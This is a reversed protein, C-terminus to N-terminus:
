QIKLTDYYDFLSQRIRLDNEKSQLSLVGALLMKDNDSLKISNKAEISNICQKISHLNLGNTRVYSSEYDLDYSRIDCTPEEKTFLHGYHWLNNNTLKPNIKVRCIEKSQPLSIVTEGVTLQNLIKTEEATLSIATCIIEKDYGDSIHHIIKMGTNAIASSSIASPRQDVIIMGTGYASIEALLNSFYESCRARSPSIDKREVNPMLHHAEEIVLLRQLRNEMNCQRSYEDMKLALIGAVFPRFDYSFDDIEIIASNKLLSEININKESNIFDGAHRILATIRVTIVGKMNQKVEEDYDIDNLVEDLNDLLDTLRPFDLATDLRVRRQTNWGKKEYCLYVLNTLIQPIPDEANFMSLLAYILNQIHYELRTNDEPVFPNIYLPKADMGFSYVEVNKLQESKTAKWYDKKASEIVIFPINKQYIESIIQKVTTSKGYQTTGAVFAHQYLDKLSLNYKTGDKLNGVVFTDENKIEPAFRSYAGSSTASDGLHQVIYGKHSQTPLTVFSSLAKSDIISCLSNGYYGGLDKNGLFINPFYWSTRNIPAYSINRISPSVVHIDHSSNNKVLSVIANSANALAYESNASVYIATQWCGNTLGSQYTSKVKGITEITDIVDHNDSDIRRIRNSGVSFDNRSVRQLMELQKDFKLIDQEINSQLCPINLFSILCNTSSITNLLSDIDGNKFETAGYVICSHKQLEQQRIPPIWENTIEANFLNTNLTHSISPAIEHNTGIYLKTGLEDNQVTFSFCHNASGVTNVVLESLRQLINHNETKNEYLEFGKVCYYMNIDNIQICNAATINRNDLSTKLYFNNIEVMENMISNLEHTIRNAM